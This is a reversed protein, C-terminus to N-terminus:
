APAPFYGAALPLRLAKPVMFRLMIPAGYGQAILLLPIESYNERKPDLHKIGLNINTFTSLTTLSTIIFYILLDFIPM